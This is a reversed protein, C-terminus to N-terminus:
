DRLLTGYNRPADTLRESSTMVHYLLEIESLKCDLALHFGFWDDHLKAALDLVLLQASADFRRQRNQLEEITVGADLMVPKPDIGADRLRDCALRAIGGTSTPIWSLGSSFNIKRM